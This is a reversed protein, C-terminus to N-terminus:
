AMIKTIELKTFLQRHGIKRRYRTKNHFKIVHIKDGKGQELITACVMAGAVYPKGIQVSSGDEQAVLLVEPFELCAGIEGELKEVEIRQKEQVPYQKGGTKIVAIM